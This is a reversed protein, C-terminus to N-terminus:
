LVLKTLFTAINMKCNLCIKGIKCGQSQLPVNKPLAANALFISFLIFKQWLEM